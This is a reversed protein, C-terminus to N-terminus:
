RAHLGCEKVSEDEWWWRGSRPHAGDSVARTCPECGISLYGQDYLRNQPVKFHSHYAQIDKWTWSIIPNFKEVQFKSDTEQEPLSRRHDSQESRLGTIWGKKGKLARMLPGVKRISCCQKRLPISEYFANMGNKNVYEEVDSAKPFYIVPQINYHRNVQGLFRYTQLPLRGTDLSFIEIPLRLRVIADMIVMDEASLSNSFASPFFDQAILALDSELKQFKNM